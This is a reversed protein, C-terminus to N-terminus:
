QVPQATANSCLHRLKSWLAPSARRMQFGSGIWDFNLSADDRSPKHRRRGKYGFGGNRTTESNSHGTPESCGRTPRMRIVDYGLPARHHRHVIARRREAPAPYLNITGHGTARPTRGDDSHRDYSPPCPTTGELAAHVTATTSPPTMCWTISAEPGSGNVEVSVGRHARAYQQGDMGVHRLHLPRSQSRRGGHGRWAKSPASHTLELAHTLRRPSPANGHLPSGERHFGGHRRRDHSHDKTGREPPRSACPVM